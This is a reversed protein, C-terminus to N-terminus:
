CVILNKSYSEKKEKIQGLLSLAMHLWILLLTTAYRAHLSKDVKLSLLLEFM